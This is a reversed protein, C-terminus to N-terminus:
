QRNKSSLAYYLRKSHYAFLMFLCECLLTSLLAAILGVIISNQNLVMEAHYNERTELLLPTDLQGFLFYLRSILPGQLADKKNQLDDFRELFQEILFAEKHFLLVDSNKHKTILARLDGSFYQDALDQYQQLQKKAERYHADLRHEYQQLFNPLQLGLLLSLAFVLKLIYRQLFATLM